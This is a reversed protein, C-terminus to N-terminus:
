HTVELVVSGWQIYVPITQFVSPVMLLLEFIDNWTDVTFILSYVFVSQLFIAVSTNTLIILNFHDFVEEFNDSVEIFFKILDKYNLLRINQYYQSIRSACFISFLSLTCSQYYIFVSILYFLFATSFLSSTHKISNFTLLNFIYLSHAIIYNRILKWHQLNINGHCNHFHIFKSDLSYLLNLVTLGKKLFLFNNLITTLVILLQTSISITQIFAFLFGESFEPFHLFFWVCLALNISLIFLNLSFSLIFFKLQYKNRLFDYSFYPLGSLLLFNNLSKWISVFTPYM